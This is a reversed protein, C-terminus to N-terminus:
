LDSANFLNINLNINLNLDKLIFADKKYLFKKFYNSTYTGKLLISNIKELMYIGKILNFKNVKYLGLWKFALKVNLLM